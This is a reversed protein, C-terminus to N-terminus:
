ITVEQNKREMHQTTEFFIKTWNDGKEHILEELGKKRVIIPEHKSSENTRLNSFVEDVSLGNTSIEYVLGLHELGITNFHDFITNKTDNSVTLKVSTALEEKLEREMSLRCFEDETLTYMEPTFSVHGQIMTIKDNIRGSNPKTQLLIYDTGDTIYGAVVYQILAPNNEVMHRRIMKVDKNAFFSSNTKIFDNRKFSNLFDEMSGAGIETFPNLRCVVYEDYKVTGDHNLMNKQYEHIVDLIQFYIESGKPHNYLDVLAEEYQVRIFEEEELREKETQETSVNTESM